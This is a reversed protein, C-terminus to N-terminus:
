LLIEDCFCCPDSGTGDLKPVQSLLQTSVSFISVSDYEDCFGCYGVISCNCVSLKYTIDAWLFSFIHVQRVTPSVKTSYRHETVLLVQSRVVDFKCILLTNLVGFVLNTYMTM